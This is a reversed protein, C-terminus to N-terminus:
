TSVLRCTIWPQLGSLILIVRSSPRCIWGSFTQPSSFVSTATIAMEAGFRTATGTPLLSLISIPSKTSATPLGNPKNLETECPMMLALPRRSRCSPM